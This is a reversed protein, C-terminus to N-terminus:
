ADCQLVLPVLQNPIIPITIITKFVLVGTHGGGSVNMKIDFLGHAGAVKLPETITLRSCISLDSILVCILCYAYGHHCIAVYMDISRSFYEAPTQGNVTIIGTGPRIRM